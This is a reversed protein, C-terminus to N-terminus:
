QLKSDGVQKQWVTKAGIIELLRVESFRNQVRCNRKRKREELKMKGDDDEKVTERGNTTRKIFM